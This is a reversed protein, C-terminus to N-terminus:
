ERRDYEYMRGAQAVFFHSFLYVSRVGWVGVLAILVGGM